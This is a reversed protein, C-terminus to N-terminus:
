ISKNINFLENLWVYYNRKFDVVFIKKNYINFIRFINPIKKNSIIIIRSYKIMLKTSESINKLYIYDKHKRAYFKDNIYNKLVQTSFIDCINRYLNIGYILDNGKLRHLTNLIEYLYKPNNKYIKYANNNIIFLYYIYM